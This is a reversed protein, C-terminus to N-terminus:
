MHIELILGTAYEGYSIWKLFAALNMKRIERLSSILRKMMKGLIQGTSFLWKWILRVGRVVIIWFCILVRIGASSWYHGDKNTSYDGGKRGKKKM